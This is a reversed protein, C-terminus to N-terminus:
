AIFLNALIKRIKADCIGACKQSIVIGKIQGNIRVSPHRRCMMVIRIYEFVDFLEIGNILIAEIMGTLECLQEINPTMGVLKIAIVIPVSYLLYALRKTASFVSPISGINLDVIVNLCIFGEYEARILPDDVIRSQFFNPKPHIVFGIRYSGALGYSKPSTVIPSILFIISFAVLLLFGSLM